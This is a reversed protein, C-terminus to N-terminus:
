RYLNDFFFVEDFVVTNDFETQKTQTQNSHIAGNVQIRMMISDQILDSLEADAGSRVNSVAIWDVVINWNMELECLKWKVEGGWVSCASALCCFRLSASLFDLIATSNEVEMSNTTNRRRRQTADRTVANGDRKIENTTTKNWQGKRSVCSLVSVTSGIWWWEFSGQQRAASPYHIHTKNSNQKHTDGFVKRCRGYLTHTHLFLVLVYLGERDRYVGREYNWESWGGNM